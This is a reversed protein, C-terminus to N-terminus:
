ACIAVVANNSVSLNIYVARETWDIKNVRWRELDEMDIFSKTEAGQYIIDCHKILFSRRSSKIYIVRTQKKLLDDWIEPIELVLPNAHNLDM